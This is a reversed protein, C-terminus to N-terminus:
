DGEHAARGGEFGAEVVDELGIGRLLIQACVSSAHISDHINPIFWIECCGIEVVIQVLLVFGHGLVALECVGVKVICGVADGAVRISAGEVGPEDPLDKTEVKDNCM